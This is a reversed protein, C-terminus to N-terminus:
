LLHAKSLLRVEKRGQRAQDLPDPIKIQKLSRFSIYIQFNQIAQSKSPFDAYQAFDALEM